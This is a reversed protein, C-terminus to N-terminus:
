VKRRHIPTLFQNGLEIFCHPGAWSYPEVGDKLHKHWIETKGDPRNVIKTVIAEPSENKHLGRIQEIKQGVYM